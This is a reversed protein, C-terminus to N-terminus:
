NNRLKTISWGSFVFSTFKSLRYKIKSLSLGNSECFSQLKGRGILHETGSQIELFSWEPILSTREIYNKVGEKIKDRVEIRKAPNSDGMKSVSIKRIMEDAREKGYIEAFNKGRREEIIKKQRNKFEDISSPNEDLYRKVGKSIKERVEPRKSSNMDGTTKSNEKYTKSKKEIIEKARDIGYKEIYSKKLHPSNSMKEKIEDYNPLDKLNFGDGGESVNYGIKPNRSDLERIWYKEMENLEALNDCFQIVEKYFNDIGYKLIARKIFIGSGFYKPDNKSDKGVYFKGNLLNTIKYIIM